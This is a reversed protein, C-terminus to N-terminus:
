PGGLLGATYLFGLRFQELSFSENPAHINDAESGFGVLLPEAGSAKILGAVIPISGGAWLYVAQRRTLRDLVAKARAALPSDPDLRIGSSGAGQERIEMRFGPPANKRLHAILAKLCRRPDQGAVLRVSIKATASGPIITKAGAGGYGSHAGNVDLCPRLGTREAITFNKEGALPAVGTKAKYWRANIPVANALKRDRPSPKPASDALGAVAIRGPSTKNKRYSRITTYGGPP